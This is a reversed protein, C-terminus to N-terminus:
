EFKDGYKKQVQLDMFNRDEPKISVMCYVYFIGGAPSGCNPHYGKPISVIHGDRILAVTHPDDMADDDYVFQAGFSDGMNFYIYVEERIEGHEHPPWATWGGVDGSCMGMLFRSSDFSEDIYNWVDRKTGNEDKGYVKHREDADVDEFKIHAFMTDRDCPAGFQILIGQDESTFTIESNIPVYLMDKMVATGKEERYTYSVSGEICVFCVEESLSEIKTEETVEIRQASTFMLGMDEPDIRSLTEEPKYHLKVSM